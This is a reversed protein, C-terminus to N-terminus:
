LKLHNLFNRLSLFSNLCKNNIDFLKFTFNIFLFFFNIIEFVFNFKFIQKNLSLFDTKFFLMFLELFRM